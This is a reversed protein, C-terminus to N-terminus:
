FTEVSANMERLAKQTRLRVYNNEERKLVEQFVGVIDPSKKEALLDIAQTRVGPNDDFLLARALAMRTAAEGAYPRLGEIAKLRVGPNPDYQLAALLVSRVDPSDGRRNLLEVSEVRLGPDAPDKAAAMLYQQIANEDVRGKLVRQRTEEVVLRVRGGDAPEISRVRMAVPDTQALRLADGGPITLRAAFFGLAVLAVAGAPKLWMSPAPLWGALRQWFNGGAAASRAEDRMRYKLERRCQALLGVPPEAESGDVADLMARLGALEKRCAECADLHSHVAEEEDFSLEGYHFLVLQKRADECTM